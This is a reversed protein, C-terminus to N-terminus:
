LTAFLLLRKRRFKSYFHSFTNLHKSCRWTWVILYAAWYQNIIGWGRRGLAHIKGLAIFTFHVLKLNLCIHIQIATRGSVIQPLKSHQKSEGCEIEKMRLIATTIGVKYPSANRQNKGRKAMCSLLLIQWTGPVSDLALPLAHLGPFISMILYNIIVYNSYKLLLECM